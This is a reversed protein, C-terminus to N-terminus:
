KYGPYFSDESFINKTHTINQPRCYLPNLIGFMQSTGSRNLDRYTKVMENENIQNFKQNPKLILVPKPPFEKLSVCRHSRRPRVSLLTRMVHPMQM